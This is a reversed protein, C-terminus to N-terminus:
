AATAGPDEKAPREDDRRDDLSEGRLHVVLLLTTAGWVLLVWM